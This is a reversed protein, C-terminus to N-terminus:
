APQYADGLLERITYARGERASRWIAEGAAIAVAGAYGDARLDPCGEGAFLDRQIQPDAGGHGGGRIEVIIEERGGFLPLRTIRATESPAPTVGTPDPETHLHLELRGETGNIGLTFGEWPTSANFSYSLIAGSQYHLVAGYTDEIDIEPDYIYRDNPYQAAYPLELYDWGPIMPREPQAGKPTLHKQFYPCRERTKSLSLPEGQEGQPRHAGQEGFYNLAGFAFVAEPRSNLLWNILDIHHVSKHISLGGSNRRERNWRYFYSSGHRTDLNYVFEVNTIRGVAGDRILQRLRQAVSTYRFNHAVILSGKSAREEHLVTRAQESTIVMPKEVIVRLDHRLGCVIQEFHTADPGAVLLTEPQTEKLMAELGEEPTYIPIQLGYKELFMAVRERDIDYIAVVESTASFNNAGEGERKGLLPLLFHYIARISLGCLAYRTKSPASM